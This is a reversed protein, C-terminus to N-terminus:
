RIAFIKNRHVVKYCVNYNSQHTYIHTPLQSLVWWYILYIYSSSSFSLRDISNISSYWAAAAAAVPPRHNSRSPVCLDISWSISSPWPCPCPCPLAPEDISSRQAEQLQNFTPNSQVPSSISKNILECARLFDDREYFFALAKNLESQFGFLKKLNETVDFRTACVHFM